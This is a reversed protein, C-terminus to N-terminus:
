GKGLWFRATTDLTVPGDDLQAFAEDRMAARDDESLLALFARGGHTWQWDWWHERSEFSFSAEEDIVEVTAFGADRMYQEGAFGGPPPPPLPKSLRQGYKAQLPGFFPPNVKQPVSVLTRGGPRQVRRCERLAQVPDACFQVGFSSLVADFSDDDFDLAEADGHHATVNDVGRARLDDALAEVMPLALDVAAVRGTPGVAEAAPFTAAGRGAGVDLVAEGEAIGALDVLRRGYHSFFEIISGYTPAAAAFAAVM